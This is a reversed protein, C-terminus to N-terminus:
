QHKRRYQQDLASFQASNYSQGTSEINLHPSDKSPNVQKKILLLHLCHSLSYGGHPKKEKEGYNPQLVHRTKFSLLHGFKSLVTECKTNGCLLLFKLKEQFGLLVSVCHCRRWCHPRWFNAYKILLCWSKQVHQKGRVHTKENQCIQKVNRLFCRRSIVLNSTGQLVCFM